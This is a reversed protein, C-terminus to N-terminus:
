DLELVLEGDAYAATAAKIIEDMHERIAAAFKVAEVPRRLGWLEVAYGALADVMAKDTGHPGSAEEQGSNVTLRHLTSLFITEERTLSALTPAFRLFESAYLGESEIQGRVVRAM